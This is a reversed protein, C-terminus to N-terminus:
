SGVDSLYYGGRAHEVSGEEELKILGSLLSRLALGHLSPDEHAYVKKVLVEASQPDGTLVDILQQERERRHRLAARVAKRGERVPVGHGPYVTAEAVSELLRLSGLYTGRHGGGTDILISSRTSILDGALVARYRNERFVLHGPAHGPTFYARLSWGPQGDPSPGLEIEQENELHIWGGSEPVLRATERHAYVELDYRRQCETLAGVHDRHHHTLLIGGLERGEARLEDLLEWLKERGAPDIPSPDVVFLREHGVIYTNTYTAPPQTPAKLPALIVGPTFTIRHLKGRKYSATLRKVGSAFGEGGRAIEQLILLVPPAILVEGQRWRRLAEGAPLSDSGDLEGPLISVREGRPIQCRLFWTDYRVPAFPPTTIRCLPVFDSGYIVQGRETLLDVFSVEGDLMRRRDSESPREGRESPREGRELPREGRGRSDRGLWIGTEEFIERVAAAVFRRFDGGQPIGEGLTVPVREDDTELTGGPFALYGGFFQLRPSRRVLLVQDSDAEPSLLISVAVRKVFGIILSTITNPRTLQGSKLSGM